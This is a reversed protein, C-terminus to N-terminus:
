WIAMESDNPDDWDIRDGGRLGSLDRDQRAKVAVTDCDPWLKTASSFHRTHRERCASVDFASLSPARHLIGQRIRNPVGIPGITALGPGSPPLAGQSRGMRNLM